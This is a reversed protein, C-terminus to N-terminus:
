INHKETKSNGNSKKLSECKRSVDGNTRFAYQKYNFNCRIAAIYQDVITRNRNDKKERDETMQGKRKTHRTVESTM